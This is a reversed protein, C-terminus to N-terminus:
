WTRRSLGSEPRNDTIQAFLGAAVSPWIWINSHVSIWCRKFFNRIMSIMPTLSVNRIHDISCLIRWFGSGTQDDIDYYLPRIRADKIAYERIIDRTGDISCNDGVYYTFDRFSQRLVSDLSRRLTKESNHAQTYVVVKSM